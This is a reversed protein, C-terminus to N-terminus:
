DGNRGRRGFEARPKIGTLHRPLAGAAPGAVKAAALATTAPQRAAPPKITVEGEPLEGAEIRQMRQAIRRPLLFFQLMVRITVFIAAPLGILHTGVIPAALSIAEPRVTAAAVYVPAWVTITLATNAVTSFIWLPSQPDCSWYFLVAAKDPHCGNAHGFIAPGYDLTWFTVVWLAVYAFGAQWVIFTLYDQLRRM